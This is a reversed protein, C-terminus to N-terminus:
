RRPLQMSLQIADLAYGFPIPLARIESISMKDIVERIARRTIDDGVSPRSARLQYGHQGFVVDQIKQKNADRAYAQSQDLAVLLKQKTNSDLNLPELRSLFLEKLRDRRHISWNIFYSHGADKLLWVFDNYGSTLDLREALAQSSERAKLEAIFEKTISRFEELSVKEITRLHAALDAENRPRLELTGSTVDVVLQRLDSPRVFANWYDQAHSLLVQGATLEAASSHELKEYVWDGGGSIEERNRGVRTLTKSLFQDVFRTLAGSGYPPMGVAQRIDLDPAVTRVLTGLQAGSISETPFSQIALVIRSLVEDAPANNNM